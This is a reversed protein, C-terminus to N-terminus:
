WAEVEAGVTQRDAREFSVAWVWPNSQWSYGRKANLADWLDRFAWTAYANNGPLYFGTRESVQLGEAIADEESIEQLRQVRVDTVRLILRTAWRPLFISPRGKEGHMRWGYDWWAHPDGDGVPTPPMLLLSGDAAYRIGGHTGEDVFRFAERVWLLDGPQAIPRTFWLRHRTYDSGRYGRIECMGPPTLVSYGVSCGYILDLTIRDFPPQPIMVRRTQTKQGALIARVMPGNELIPREKAM